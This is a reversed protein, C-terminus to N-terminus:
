LFQWLVALLIVVLATMLSMEALLNDTLHDGKTDIQMPAGNLGAVL